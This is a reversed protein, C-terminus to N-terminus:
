AWLDIGSYQNRLGQNVVQFVSTAKKQVYSVKQVQYGLGALTKNLQPWHAEFLRHALENEAYVKLELGAKGSTLHIWLQGLHQTYFHLVVWRYPFAGEKKEGEEAPSLYLEGHHEGRQWWLCHLLQHGYLSTQDQNILKLAQAIEGPEAEGLFFKGVSKLQISDEEKLHRKIWARAELFSEVREEPIKLAELRLEEVTKANVPLEYAMLTEVIKLNLASPAIGAALCARALAPSGATIQQEGPLLKLTLGEQSLNLVQLKLIQGPKLPWAQPAPLQFGRINLYVEQGRQEVVAQYVQEERFHALLEKWDISNLADKAYFWSPTHTVLDPTTAQPEPVLRLIIGEGKLGAMQLWLVQGRQLPLETRAPIRMGMLNLLLNNGELNEVVARYIQGERLTVLKSIWKDTLQNVPITFLEM